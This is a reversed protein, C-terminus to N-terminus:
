SYTGTKSVKAKGVARWSKGVYRQLTVPLGAVKPAVTGSLVVISRIHATAPAVHLVVHTKVPASAQAATPAILFSGVVAVSVSLAMPRSMWRNGVRHGRM